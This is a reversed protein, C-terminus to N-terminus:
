KVRRAKSKEYAKLYNLANELKYITIGIRVVRFNCWTCLIGRVYKKRESPPMLKWGRVHEHDTVWKKNQGGCIPCKNGQKAFIALWEKKTLGYYEANGAPKIM